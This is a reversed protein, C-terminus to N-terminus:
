AEAVESVAYDGAESVAAAIEDFGIPRDATVIMRGGDLSVSVDSVGIISSVEESVHQVCHGCTMGSVIYSQTSM